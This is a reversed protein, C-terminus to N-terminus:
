GLDRERHQFIWTETLPKDGAALFARMDVPGVGDPYVDFVLRWRDTGVVRLAYSNDVVANRVTIHPKVVGDATQYRALDGGEFDIAYKLGEKPRAKGPMGARGLRSAVVGAVAAPGFMGAKMWHMRYDYQVEEGAPIEQDTTWYAVINDFIEDDTPIEVLQVMGTGWDGVPEIWLDPRREYFVGDDEYSAFQRDRQMLGFGRPNDDVFSSTRLHGSNDLPRWIREGSGTWLALGDSDHIEPRWDAAEDRNTESFWFMSTLPAIGLRAVAQRTFLHVSVNMVIDQDNPADCEIRVAGSISPGDLLAYIRLGGGSLSELWFETFRPFEERRDARATDIAVARASLGYQNMPGASRFYSSGMFALWDRAPDDAYLVRFGAWGADTPIDDSRIDGRYAFASPDYLVERAEGNEIMHLRVSERAGQHRHFMAVPAAGASNRWLSKEVDFRIDQFADYDIESLISALEPAIVPAVYPQTALHRAWSILGEFSFSKAGGLPLGAKQQAWAPFGVPLLGAATVAGMMALVKRRSIDTTM